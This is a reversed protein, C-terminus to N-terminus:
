TSDLTKLYSVVIVDCAGSGSDEVPDARVENRLVNVPCLPLLGLFGRFIERGSLSGTPVSPTYLDLLHVLYRLLFWHRM